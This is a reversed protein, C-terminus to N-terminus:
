EIRAQESPFDLNHFPNKKSFILLEFNPKWIHLSKRNLDITIYRTMPENQYEYQVMFVLDTMESSWILNEELTKLPKTKAFKEFASPSM